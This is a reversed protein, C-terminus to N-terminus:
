KKGEQWLGHLRERLEAKASSQALMSQWQVGMAELVADAAKEMKAGWAKQIKAKLVDVHVQKMATM